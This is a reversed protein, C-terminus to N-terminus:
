ANLEHSKMFKQLTEYFHDFTEFDMQQQSDSLAVAPDPHVEAMVGDAGIAIAAKACPLLLDRRGTSHTVDVFVPLHTEQKLIPVASIDLTNRTAREYTRIGRECLIIQDNGKSMIYEAAHIFEDITAALGRKLLVPKNTQGAAKLLEFNQMNRAGIQIVDIYDLAEELHTPTVIESVIGLGHKQGVEKLIKLGELGLGQFDYPSTRPKYAGGRMLKLGKKAIEAGVADTQEFSEVACPGFVFSPAGQGIPDGNVNVITDEKKRKRSVLLEKKTNTQQLDLAQKFIEKFIHSVSGETLPGENNEKILDLMHRERLPDFRNVGQKEKAKGIEEVLQARKNILNLIELNIDDVQNRLEELIQHSM